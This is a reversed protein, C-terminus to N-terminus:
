SEIRASMESMLTALVAMDDVQGVRGPARSRLGGAQFSGAPVPTGGRVPPPAPVAIIQQEQDAEPDGCLAQGMSGVFLWATGDLM